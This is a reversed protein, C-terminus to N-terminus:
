KMLSERISQPVSLPIYRINEPYKRLFYKASLLFDPSPNTFINELLLPHNERIYIDSITIKDAKFCYAYTVVRADDPITIKCMKHGWHAYAMYHIINAFYLGGEVRDQINFPRTDINTGLNYKFKNYGTNDFGIMKFLIIDPFLNNFEKGTIEKGFVQQINREMEVSNM